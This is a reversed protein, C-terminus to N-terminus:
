SATEALSMPPAKPGSSSSPLRVERFPEGVPHDLPHGPSALLRGAGLDLVVTCVTGLRGLASSLADGTAPDKARWERCIPWTGERDALIRRFAAVTADVTADVTAREGFLGRVLDTARVFRGRSCTDAGDDPFGLVPDRSLGGNLGVYHNTHVGVRDTQPIVEVVDGAFEVMAAEQKSSCLYIHSSTGRPAGVLKRVADDFSSADLAARLLVHVPVGMKEPQLGLVNLATGVGASSLGTKALMGPETVTVLSTSDTTKVIEAIVLQEELFEDWDWNQALVGVERDALSTCETSITIPSAEEEKKEAADATTPRRGRLAVLIETRANLCTIEWPELEAGRAIADLEETYRPDFAEIAARAEAAFGAVDDLV